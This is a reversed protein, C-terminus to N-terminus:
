EMPVTSWLTWDNSPAYPGFVFYPPKNQGFYSYHVDSWQQPVQPAGMGMGYVNGGFLKWTKMLGHFDSLDTTADAGPEVTIAREYGNKKLISVVEKIPANGQGPSLHEDQFGYNDALHVNGVMGEKALSEVQKLYWGKFKADNQERNLKPDDQWFKRWMNLHGTDLTVKIHQAALKEAETKSVGTYFQNEQLMDTRGPIFAENLKDESMETPSRSAGLQIKPQTLLEVMRKRSKKIIWKVEELHGGFREPFLNEIAVVVPNNPDKTRQMAHIGAEAYMRVGHQELRKIPTILSDATERTDDAQQEQSTSSQRMYELQRRTETITKNIMESPMKTETPIIRQLVPGFMPDEKMIKWKEDEPIGKELEDYFKKAEDLKGLQETLQDARSGFELAWGRAHGEQTELTARLFAEEPYLKEYYNPEKGGHTKKFWENRERAEEKFYDFHRMETKFRGADADYEPVRGRKSNYPNIIKRNEFDIYDDKKILVPNGNQDLGQYDQKARLWIPYAVLRDKQVTEMKQSTRADMLDFKADFEQTHAMRVILRGTEDRALNMQHSEDDMYMDTMPREFEGSHMVVSGGGMDAQFDIARKLEFLDQYAGYSSFNGREDRGMMGMLGFSAHTNFRVENAMQMERLAQRQDEGLMEPTQQNRNGTRYGPFQIELKGAGMRIKSYIGAVNSASIGMPVSMGIDQVGLTVDPQNAEQVGYSEPEMANFYDVMPHHGYNLDGFKMKQAYGCVLASSFGKPNETDQFHEANEHYQPIKSVGLRYV